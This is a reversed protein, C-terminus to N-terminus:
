STAAPVFNCLNSLFGARAANNSAQVLLLLRDLIHRCGRFRFHLSFFDLFRFV